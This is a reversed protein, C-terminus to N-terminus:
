ISVAATFNVISIQWSILICATCQSFHLLCYLPSFAVPILDNRSSLRPIDFLHFIVHHMMISRTLLTFESFFKLFHFLSIYCSLSIKIHWPKLSIPTLKREFNLSENKMWKLEMLSITLFPIENNVGTFSLANELLFLRKRETLSCLFVSLSLSLPIFLKVIFSCDVPVLHRHIFIACRSFFFNFKWIYKMRKLHVIRAAIEV